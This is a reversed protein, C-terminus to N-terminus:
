SDINQNPLRFEKKNRSVWFKNRCISARWASAGVGPVGYGARADGGLHVLKKQRLARNARPYQSTCWEVGEESPFGPCARADGGPYSYKQWSYGEKSCWLGIANSEDNPFFRALAKERAHLVVSFGPLLVARGM